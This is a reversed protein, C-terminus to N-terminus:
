IMAQIQDSLKDITGRLRDIEIKKEQNDQQLASIMIKMTKAEEVTGIIEEFETLELAADAMVCYESEYEIRNERHMNNAIEFLVEGYQM